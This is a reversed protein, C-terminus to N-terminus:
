LRSNKHLFKYTRQRAEAEIIRNLSIMAQSNFAAEFELVPAFVLARAETRTTEKPLCSQVINTLAEFRNGPLTGPSRDDNGHGWGYVTSRSRDFSEALDNWTRFHGHEVLLRLKRGLGPIEVGAM